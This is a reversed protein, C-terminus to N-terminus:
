ALALSKQSLTLSLQLNGENLQWGSVTTERMGAMTFPEKEFIARADEIYKARIIAIGSGDWEGLRNQDRLPGAMFLTGEDELKHLFLLHDVLVKAYAPSMTNVAGKGKMFCLYFQKGLMQPLLEGLTPKDETAPASLAAPVALTGGIGLAALSTIIQRRSISGSAYGEIVDEVSTSM